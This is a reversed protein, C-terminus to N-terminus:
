ALAQAIVTELKKRLENFDFNEYEAPLIPPLFEFTIIGPRVMLSGRRWSQYAGRIVCPIIVPQANKALHFAGKKFEQLRGTKSREGEPFVALSEGANIAKEIKKMSAIAQKRDKNDVPIIGHAKMMWGWIPLRFYKAAGVGTIREPMAYAVLFADLFSQHNILYLYPGDASNPIQGKFEVRQGLIKLCLWGCPRIWFHWLFERPLFLLWVIYLICCIAASCCFIPLLILSRLAVLLWAILEGIQKLLRM